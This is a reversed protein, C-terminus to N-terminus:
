FSPEDISSVLNYSCSKRKGLGKNLFKSPSVCISHKGRRLHCIARPWASPQRVVRSAMWACGGRRSVLGLAHRTIAGLYTGRAMEAACYEILKAEVQERTLPAQSSGYFRADVEALLYPNHYAERGLM